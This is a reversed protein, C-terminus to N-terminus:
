AGKRRRTQRELSHLRNLVARTVRRAVKRPDEHEWGRIVIWGAAKLRQNTDTDSRRNADLKERWFSANAKPWTAHQPCGHCFCGDVYVAVRARRFIVDARRSSGPLPRADVSYRLGAKHLLRRIQ